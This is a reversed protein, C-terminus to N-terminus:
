WRARGWDGESAKIEAPYIEQVAIGVCILLMHLWKVELQTTSFAEEQM